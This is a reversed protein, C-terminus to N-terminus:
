LSDLPSLVHSVVTETAEATLRAHSQANHRLCAVSRLSTFCAIIKLSTPSM